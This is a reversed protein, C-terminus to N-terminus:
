FLRLGQDKLPSAAVPRPEAPVVPEGAARFHARARQSMPSLVQGGSTASVWCPINTIGLRTYTISPGPLPVLSKLSRPLAPPLDRWPANARSPAQVPDGRRATIRTHSTTRAQNPTDRRLDLRHKGPGAPLVRRALRHLCACNDSPVEGAETSRAATDHSSRSASIAVRDTAPGTTARTSRRSRALVYRRWRRGGSALFATDASATGGDDDRPAAGASVLHDGGGGVEGPREGPEACALSM